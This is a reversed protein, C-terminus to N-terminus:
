REPLPPLANSRAIEGYLAASRRPTRKFGDEYDVAILGLRPGFGDVWEFNDLLSWEVYARVDVGHQIALWVERVHARLYAQRGVDDLAADATGNELIYVPRRYRQSAQTLLEYLGRPYVTWGMENTPEDPRGPDRFLVTPQTPHAVHGEIYVRTYYNIGVYDQTGALGDIARDIGSAAIRMHGSAIADFFDWNWAQEVLATIARDAPHWNRLPAFAQTAQTIGVNVRVGHADGARHLRRYALAHASLLAAYVDAAAAADTRRELPPYVGDIYGSYLYVMPENLTCFDRVAPVFHEAVAAVFRQWHELADAREWGRRGSADPEFFWEPSVYHFLTVFPTIGQRRMEAFLREYYDIGDSAPATMDARPFLRAWEVSVRLANLGMDHAAAIDEVYHTDFASKHTRVDISWRGFDRIHGPRTTGYAAGAEFRQNRVVESEFASWDSAQATEAQHGSLAAGWYFGEPFHLVESTPGATVTVESRSPTALYLWAVLLVLGAAAIAASAAGIHNLGM